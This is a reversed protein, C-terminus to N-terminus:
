KNRSIKQKKLVGSVTDKAIKLVRGTDRVGAGNMAMEVVQEKVGPYYANKEYELQFIKRSCEDNCCKFKQKGSRSKGYKVVKEQGCYPCKVEIKAMESEEGNQKKGIIGYGKKINLDKTVSGSINRSNWVFGKRNPYVVLSNHQKCQYYKGAQKFEFGMYSGLFNIIDANRAKEKQEETFRKYEM